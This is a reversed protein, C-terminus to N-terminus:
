QLSYIDNLNNKYAEKDLNYLSNRVDALDQEKESIENEDATYQYTYNGQSDRRLRMQSKNRQSEELNIRALEIEYLKNARDLDYQTIRDREKLNGLQEDMVKQLRQQAAVNDTKNISDIYKKELERIGYTTNITDLYRDANKNILDWQTNVFDLGMGNTLSNNLKDFIDKISNEFKSKANELGEELTSNFEQVASQWKERASEWEKSGEEAAQM